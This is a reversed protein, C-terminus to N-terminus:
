VTKRHAAKIAWKGMGGVVRKWAESKSLGKKRYAIVAKHARLTHVGKGDPPSIGAKHYERRIGESM